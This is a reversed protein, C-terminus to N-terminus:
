GDSKFLAVKGHSIRRLFINVGALAMVVGEPHATILVKVPAPALATALAVVLNAVITKSLFISKTEPATSSPANSM